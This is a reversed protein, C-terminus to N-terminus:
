TVDIDPLTGECIGTVLGAVFMTNVLGPVGCSQEYEAPEFVISNYALCYHSLIRGGCSVIDNGNPM